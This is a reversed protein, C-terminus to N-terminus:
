DYGYVELARSPKFYNLKAFDTMFAGQGSLKALKSFPFVPRAFM